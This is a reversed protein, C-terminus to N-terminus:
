ENPSVYIIEVWARGDASVYVLANQEDCCPALRLEGAVKEVLSLEWYKESTVERQEGTYPDAFSVTFRTYTNKARANETWARERGFRLVTKETRTIRGYTSLQARMENRYEIRKKAKRNLTFDSLPGGILLVGALVIFPLVLLIEGSGYYGAAALAGSWIWFILGVTRGSKTLSYGAPTILELEEGNM